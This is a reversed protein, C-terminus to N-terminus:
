EAGTWKPVCPKCGPVFLKHFEPSVFTLIKTIILVNCIKLLRPRGQAPQPFDVCARAAISTTITNLGILQLFSLKVASFVSFGKAMRSYGPLAVTVFCAPFRGPPVLYVRRAHLGFIQYPRRLKPLHVLLQVVDTSISPQQLQRKAPRWRFLVHSISIQM